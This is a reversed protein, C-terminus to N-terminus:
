GSANAAKQLAGLSRELMLAGYAANAHIVDERGHGIDLRKALRVSGRMFKDATFLGDVITKRPQPVYIVGNRACVAAARNEFLRGVFAGDGATDLVRFTEYQGHVDRTTVAPRPQAAILVPTDCGAIIRRALVMATTQALGAEVMDRLMATSVLVKGVIAADEMATVSPQALCAVERLHKAANFISFLLGTLIVGDYDALRLAERGCLRKVSRRAAADPSQLVGDVVEFTGMASHDGFMDFQVDPFRVADKTAAVALAAM